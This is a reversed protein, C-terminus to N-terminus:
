EDFTQKCFSVLGTDMPGSIGGKRCKQWLNCLAMVRNFITATWFGKRVVMKVDLNNMQSLKYCIPSITHSSISLCLKRPTRVYPCVSMRVSTHVSLLLEIHRGSKNPPLVLSTDMPDNIGGKWCKQWLNCLAMVRNFLTVTWFGKKVVMKVDLNNM